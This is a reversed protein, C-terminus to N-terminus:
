IKNAKFLDHAFDYFKENTYELDLGSAFNDFCRIATIFSGSSMAPLNNNFVQNTIWEIYSEACGFSSKLKIEILKAISAAQNTEDLNEIVNLELRIINVENHIIEKTVKM